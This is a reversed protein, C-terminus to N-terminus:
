ALEKLKAELEAIKKRIDEKSEFEKSAKDSEELEEDSEDMESEEMDCEKMKKKPEKEDKIGLLEKRQKLIQEAKSLGEQLGEPSDSVVKVAMKDKMRNGYGEGLLDSMEKKLDMISEKKMQKKMDKM